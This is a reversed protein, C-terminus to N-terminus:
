SKAENAFQLKETLADLNAGVTKDFVAKHKFFIFTPMSNINYLEAAECNEDVDVNLFLLNTYKAPLEEVDDHIKNCAGCWDAVFGVVVIQNKASALRKDLDKLTKVNAIVM